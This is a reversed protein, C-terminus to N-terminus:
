GSESDIIDESREGVVMGITRSAISFAFCFSFTIRKKGHRLDDRQSVRERV